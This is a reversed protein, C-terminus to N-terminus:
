LRRFVSSTQRMGGVFARILTEIDRYYRSPESRDIGPLAVGCHQIFGDVIAVRKNWNDPPIHRDFVDRTYYEVADAKMKECLVDLCHRVGGNVGDCCDRFCSVADGGQRRLEHNLIEKARGAADRRSLRGGLSICRSHHHQLYDGNLDSFEEFSGVTNSNPHYSMRAEDHANGVRQAITGEDLDSLLAQFGM